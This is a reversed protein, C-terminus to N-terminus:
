YLLFLFNRRIIRTFKVCRIGDVRRSSIISTVRVQRFLGPSIAYGDDSLEDYRIITYVLSHIVKYKIYLYYSVALSGKACKSAFHKQSKTMVYNWVAVYVFTKVSICYSTVIKTTTSTAAHRDFKYSTYVYSSFFTLRSYTFCSHAPCKRHILPYVWWHNRMNYEYM